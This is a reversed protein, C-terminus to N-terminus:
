GIPKEAGILAPNADNVATESPVAGDVPSDQDLDRYRRVSLARMRKLWTETKTSDREIDMSDYYQQAKAKETWTVGSFDKGKQLLEVYKQIDVLRVRFFEKRLNVKNIKLAMFQQHLKYELAPADNTEIVAHIDFEFPVSASSLEDVRENAERRTLGIKYVGEGFSGINSIIYIRGKCTQQAITLEKRTADSLDQRLRQVEAELKTREETHALELLKEAEALASEKIQKEKAAERLQSEREEDAKQRDREQEKLYRQEERARKDLEQVAAAWKLEALRADLYAPLIRANRFASGDMNVISFADRIKQELIGRNESRIDTLITDVKGNFAQTVFHVATANERPEAYDSAAAEGQNVMRKSLERASAFSQAATDHGYEIALDDLISHTPVLYRDGYGDVINRMAHAASELMRHEQLATYADAGIEKARKEADALIRGADRIAQDLRVDAQEHIEKVQQQARLKASTMYTQSKEFLSTAELRLAGAQRLAETLTRQMQAETEGLKQFRRLPEVEKAMRQIAANAELYIRKGEAAYHEKIREFEEKRAASEQDVIRQAESLSQRSEELIRAKEIEFERRATEASREAEVARNQLNKNALFFTVLFVVCILSIIGLFITM